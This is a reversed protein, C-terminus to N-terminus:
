LSTPIITHLCHSLTDHTCIDRTVRLMTVLPLAPTQLCALTQKVVQGLTIGPVTVIYSVVTM